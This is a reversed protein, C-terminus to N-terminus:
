KYLSQEWNAFKKGANWAKKAIAKIGKYTWIWFQATGGAVSELTDENLEGSGVSELAAVFSDVEDRSLELGYSAFIDQIQSKSEANAIATLFEDNDVLKEFAVTKEANM